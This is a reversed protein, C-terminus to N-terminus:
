QPASFPEDVPKAVGRAGTQQYIYPRGWPDKPVGKNLYPGGWNPEGRPQEVLAQMGQESTPYHGVDLRFQDLAKNLADIQARAVKFQSKGVQAFYRPRVGVTLLLGIFVTVAAVRRVV